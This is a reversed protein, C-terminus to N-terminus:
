LALIASDALSTTQSFTNANGAVTFEMRAENQTTDTNLTPVIRTSRNATREPAGTTAMFELGQVVRTGNALVHVFVVDCCAAANNAASVYAASLGKFKMFATQEVSFRNGNLAGPQNYNATGDADYVYEEWLGTSAMTFNTIVGSAITVGTIDSLKCGFSKVIGGQNPTCDTVSNVGVLGCAM